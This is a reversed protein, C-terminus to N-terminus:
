INTSSIKIFSVTNLDKKNKIDIEYWSFNTPLKYPDKQVDKVEKIVDIPGIINKNDSFKLVPQTDWFQWKDKIKEDKNSQKMSMLSGLKETMESLKEDIENNQKDINENTNNEITNDPQKEM